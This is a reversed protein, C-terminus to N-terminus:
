PIKQRESSIDHNTSSYPEPGGKCMNNGTHELASNIKFEQLIKTNIKKGLKKVKKKQQIYVNVEKSGLLM